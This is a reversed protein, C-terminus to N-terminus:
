CLGTNSTECHQLVPGRPSKRACWLSAYVLGWFAIVGIFTSLICSIFRAFYIRASGLIAVGLGVEWIMEVTMLGQILPGMCYTIGRVPYPDGQCGGDRSRKMLKIASTPLMKAGLLAKLEEMGAQM